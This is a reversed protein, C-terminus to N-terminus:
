PTIQYSEITLILKGTGPVTSEIRLPIRRNDDSLYIRIVGDGRYRRPDRVHMEMLVTPLAGIATVTTDVRTVRVTTPNRAAQFHRDFTYNTDPTIPITRLFYVFSLEDLPSISLTEGSTGDDSVWRKQEPYIEVCTENTFFLHREQEHFRLTRMGVPDLWSEITESGKLPGIGARTQSRLIYTTTGRLDVPGDVTMIAHGIDKFNNIQVQYVIREGPMFPLANHEQAAAFGPLTLVTAAVLHKVFLARQASDPPPPWPPM